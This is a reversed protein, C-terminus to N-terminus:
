SIHLAGCRTHCCLASVCKLYNEEQVTINDGVSVLLDKPTVGKSEELVAAALSAPATPDIRLADEEPASTAM